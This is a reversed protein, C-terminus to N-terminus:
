RPPELGFPATSVVREQVLARRRATAVRADWADRYGALLDRERTLAYGLRATEHAALGLAARRAGARTENKAWMLLRNRFQLRRHAPDVQARTSPSYTRGHGARAAPEYVAGWGLLRARWALDADTAWLAMDEDLVEAVGSGGPAPPLACADIVARRYLACAGDPGFCPAATTYATAPEGHGVLGNTRLRTVSMGAADLRGDRARLLKGAVSGVASDALHPLAAALFGPELDCDANLLLVVDADACAAFGRNIAAAYSLRTDLRLLEAGSSRVLADTGDTSADDVVLVRADPQALAAPLSTRLRHAEDVSLMLITTTM